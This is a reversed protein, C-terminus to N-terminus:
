SVPGTQLLWPGSRLAAVAGGLPTVRHVVALPPPMGRDRAHRLDRPELAELLDFRDDVAVGRDRELHPLHQLAGRSGSTPALAAPSAPSAARTQLRGDTPCM